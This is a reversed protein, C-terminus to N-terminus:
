RYTSYSTAQTADTPPAASTSPVSVAATGAASYTYPSQYQPYSYVSSSSWVTHIHMCFRNIVAVLPLHFNRVVLRPQWQCTVARSM